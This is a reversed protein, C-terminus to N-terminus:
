VRWRVFDAVETKTPCLIASKNNICSFVGEFGGFHATLPRFHSKNHRKLFIPEFAKPNNAIHRAPVGCSAINWRPRHFPDREAIKAFRIFFCLLDNHISMVKQSRPAIEFSSTLLNM